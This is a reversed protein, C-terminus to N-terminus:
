SDNDNPVQDGDDSDVTPTEFKPLTTLHNKAQEILKNARENAKALTEEGRKLANAIFQDDGSLLADTSQSLQSALATEQELTKNVRDSEAETVLDMQARTAKQTSILLRRTQEMLNQIEEIQTHFHTRGEKNGSDNM